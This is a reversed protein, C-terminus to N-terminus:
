TATWARPELHLIRGGPLTFTVTQGFATDSMEHKIVRYTSYHFLHDLPRAAAWNRSSHDCGQNTDAALVSDIEIKVASTATQAGSAM